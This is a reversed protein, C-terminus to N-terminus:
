NIQSLGHGRLNIKKTSAAGYKLHSLMSTQAILKVFLFFQCGLKRCIISLDDVQEREEPQPNKESLPINKTGIIIETISFGLCIKLIFSVVLIPFLYSFLCRLTL